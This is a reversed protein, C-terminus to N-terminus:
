RAAIPRGVRDLELSRAAAKAARAQLAAARPSGRSRSLSPSGHSRSRAKECTTLARHSM